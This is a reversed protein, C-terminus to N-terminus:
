HEHSFFATCRGGVLVVPDPSLFDRLDALLSTTVEQTCISSDRACYWVRDWVARDVPPILSDRVHERIVSTQKSM